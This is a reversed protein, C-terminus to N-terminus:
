SPDNSFNYGGVIITPCFIFCIQFKILKWLKWIDLFVLSKQECKQTIKKKLLAWNLCLSTLIFYLSFPKFIKKRWNAEFFACNIMLYRFNRASCPGINYLNRCYYSVFKKTIHTQEQCARINAPLALAYRHLVKWTNM